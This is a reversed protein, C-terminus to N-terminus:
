KVWETINSVFRRAIGIKIDNKIFFELDQNNYVQELNLGNALVVNCTKKFTQKSCIIPLM